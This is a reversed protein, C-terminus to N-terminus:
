RTNGETPKPTANTTLNMELHHRRNSEAEARFRRDDLPLVDHGSLATRIVTTGTKNTM